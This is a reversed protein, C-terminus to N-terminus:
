VGQTQFNEKSVKVVLLEEWLPSYTAHLTAHTVSQSLGSRQEDDTTQRFPSVFFKLYFKTWSQSPIQQPPKETSTHRHLHTRLPTDSRYKGLSM